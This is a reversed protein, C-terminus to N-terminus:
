DCQCVTELRNVNEQSIRPMPKHHYYAKQIQHDKLKSARTNKAYNLVVRNRCNTRMWEQENYM